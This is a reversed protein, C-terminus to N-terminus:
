ENAHHVFSGTAALLSLSFCLGVKVLISFVWRLQRMVCLVDQQVFRGFRAWTGCPGAKTLGAEVIGQGRLQQGAGRRQLVNTDGLYCRGKRAAHPGM